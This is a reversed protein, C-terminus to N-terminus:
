PSEHGTTGATDVALIPDGSGCAGPDVGSVTENETIFRCM